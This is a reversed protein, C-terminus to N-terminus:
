RPKWEEWKMREINKIIQRGANAWTFNEHVNRSGFEAKLLATDYDKIVELMAKALSGVDACAAYFPTGDSMPVTEFTHRCFYASKENLFDLQGSYRTTVVPLGTAIAELLPLGFGEGTTPMVFANAMEYLSPIADDPYRRSDFIIGDKEVLKGEGTESSVKFVIKVFPLERLIWSHASMVKDWGKRTNPAGLYLFIFEDGFKWNRKKYKFLSPDFGLRNIFMPKKGKHKEFLNFCFKSPVLIMDAKKFAEIFWDQVPPGESMTFLVNKKGPIPKFDLPHCLHLAVRAKSDIEVGLKKLSERFRFNTLTYGYGFGAVVEYHTAWDIQM